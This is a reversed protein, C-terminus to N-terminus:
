NLCVVSDLINFLISILLKLKMNLKNDLATKTATLSNEQAQKLRSSFSVVLIHTLTLPETSQTRKVAKVHNNLCVCLRSYGPTGTGSSVNV